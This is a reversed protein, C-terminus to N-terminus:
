GYCNVNLGLLTIEKCGCEVLSRGEALSDEPSRSREAGRVYPVICYTCFNNCGYMISVWARFPCEREVPLGEAIVPEGVNPFFLRKKETMVRFLIEPLEWLKETGFVFDIYPYSKQIRESMEPKSVMCGCIGILLSPKARKLHKYGGTISLAKKEAHDRVACTNVVILDATEVSDAKGYGMECLMGLIRESDAENQQCGYTVVHALRPAGGAIRERIKKMYQFQRDIEQPLANRAAKEVRRNM